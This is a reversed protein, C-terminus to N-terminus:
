GHRAGEARSRIVRELEQLVAALQLELREIAPALPDRHEQAEQFAHKLSDAAMLTDDAAADLLRQVRVAPSPTKPKQTRAM